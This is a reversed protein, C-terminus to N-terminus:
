ARSFWFSFSTGSVLGGSEMRIVNNTYSLLLAYSCWCRKTSDKCSRDGVANGEYAKRRQGRQKRPYLLFDKETEPEEFWLHIFSERSFPEVTNFLLLDKSLSHWRHAGPQKLGRGLKRTQLSPTGWHIAYKPLPISSPHARQNFSPWSM